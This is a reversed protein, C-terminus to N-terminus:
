LPPTYMIEYPSSLENHPYLANLSIKITKLKNLSLDAKAIGSYIKEHAGLEIRRYLALGKESKNESFSYTRTEIFSMSFPRQLTSLDISQIHQAKLIQAQLCDDLVIIAEPNSQVLLSLAPPLKSQNVFYTHQLHHIILSPASPGTKDSRLSYAQNNPFLEPSLSPSLFPPNASCATIQASELQTYLLLLSLATHEENRSQLMLRHEALTLHSLNQSLLMLTLSSLSLAILTELLSFGAEM